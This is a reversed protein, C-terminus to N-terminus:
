FLWLIMVILSYINNFGKNTIPPCISDFTLDKINSQCHSCTLGDSCKCKGHNCTSKWCDRDTNCKGNGQQHGKTGYCYDPGETILQDLQDNLNLCTALDVLTYNQSRVYDIILPISNISVNYIDHQLHIIGIPKMTDILTKTRNFIMQTGNPDGIYKWDKSDLNWLVMQLGLEAATQITQNTYGEYPPRFYRPIRHCQHNRILMEGYYLEQKVQNVSLTTLDPHDYTHILVSYGEDITQKFIEPNSDIQTGIVFFTAPANKEKLIKLLIPTNINPGDDFTLAYHNDNVCKTVITDLPSSTNFCKGCDYPNDSCNENLTCLGDNNITSLDQCENQCNIPNCYEITTGCWGFKSCCYNDFGLSSCSISSNCQSGIVLQYGSLFFILFM